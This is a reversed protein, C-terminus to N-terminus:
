SAKRLEPVLALGARRAKDVSLRLADEVRKARETLGDIEAIALEDRVTRALLDRYHDSNASLRQVAKWEEFVKDAAETRAAYKELASIREVISKEALELAQEQPGLLEAIKPNSKRSSEAEFEVRLRSLESLTQAIDWRQAPLTVTNRIDDLLGESNVESNLVTDIAKSTRELLKAAPADLSDATVYRAAHRRALRIADAEGCLWFLVAFVILQVGSMLYFATEFGFLFPAAVVAAQALLGLVTKGKARVVMMGPFYAWVPTIIACLLVDWGRRGGFRPVPPIAGSGPLQEAVASLAQRTEGDLEPDLVVLTM